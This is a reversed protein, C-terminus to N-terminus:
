ANILGTLLENLTKKNIPGHHIKQLRGHSNFFATVPLGVAKLSKTFNGEPDQGLLYTIGLEDARKKSRTPSDSVNIGIFKISKEYMRHALEFEPMEELCPACWTAWLNVIMPLGEKAFLENLTIKDDDIQFTQDLIEDSTIQVSSESTCGSILILVSLFLRHM